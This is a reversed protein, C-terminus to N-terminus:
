KETMPEPESLANLIVELNEVMEIIDNKTINIDTRDTGSMQGFQDTSMAMEFLQELHKKVESAPTKSFFDHFIECLVSQRAAVACKGGEQFHCEHNSEQNTM